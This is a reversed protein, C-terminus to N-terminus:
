LLRPSGHLCRSEPGRLHWQTVCGWSGSCRWMGVDSPGEDLGAEREGRTGRPPDPGSERMLLRCKSVSCKSGAM